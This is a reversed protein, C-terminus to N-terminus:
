LLSKRGSLPILAIRLKDTSENKEAHGQEHSVSLGSHLSWSVVPIPIKKKKLYNCSQFEKDKSMMVKTYTEKLVLPYTKISFYKFHYSYYM